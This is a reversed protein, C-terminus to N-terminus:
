TRPSRGPATARRRPQAPTRKKAVSTSRMGVDGLGAELLDLASELTQAFDCDPNQLSAMWSAIFASNVAHAILAPRLDTVPDIALRLALHDVLKLVRLHCEGIMLAILQEHGAAIEGYLRAAPAHEVMDPRAWLARFAQRMAIFPPEQASRKVLEEYLLDMGRRVEALMIEAKGGPFHRFFTRTNVGVAEAIDGTTVNDFGRESFLTLATREISQRTGQLQVVRLNASVPRSTM